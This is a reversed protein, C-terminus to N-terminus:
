SRPAARPSSTSSRYLEAKAGVDIGRTPEAFIL